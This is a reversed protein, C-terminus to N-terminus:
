DAWKIKKKEEKGRKILAARESKPIGYTPIGVLSAAARGLGKGPPAQVGASLPFPSAQLAIAKAKAAEMGGYGKYLPKLKPADLSPYAHGSVEVYLAKPWFGLKNGLTKTPDRLWEATEMSHKAVQMSTGDGNDVRTPDPNEWVPHGSLAMNIGNIITLYAIATNLVYRRAFDGQTVPNFMGKVGQRLQWNQPKALEKPLATTFSRLTSVTWDPAFLMIQSWARGKLGAAQMAFAKAYKNEVQNAVDIWNLGGFTNNVFRSIEKQLQADPIDPNKLKAKTFLNMALNLKQGMHMYDWTFKNINQLVYKDYPDTIHQVAKIEKDAPAFRSLLQDAAQGTKAIITKDVDEVSAMLGNQIFGNILENNADTRFAEVAKRVGAGGSFVEKLFLAPHAVAQATGLSYAHFFSGVTNLSKILYNIAGLGRLLMGPNTQQFMHEMAPVIDPHVLQGELPRSGKGQFPVYGEKLAETSVPVIYGKKNPAITEKFHDIMIKHVRATLMAKEYAGAITAIDTHVIVGTGAVAEELDRLYEYKRAVTFDKILKSDKPANYIKSRLDQIEKPSFGTKSFDLIHTIYNERLGDILGAKEAQDGIDKLRAEVQKVVPIAHEEDPLAEWKDHAAKLREVKDELELRTQEDKTNSLEVLLNDIGKRMNSLDKAKESTTHLKDIAKQAEISRTARSRIGENPIMEKINNEWIDAKRTLVRIDAMAQGVIDAASKLVDPHSENEKIIDKAIEEHVKAMAEHAIDQAEKPNPATQFNPDGSKRLDGSHLGEEPFDHKNYDKPIQGTEKARSEAEERNLFNGEQDLFGQNYKSSESEPTHGEVNAGDVGEAKLANDHVAGQPVVEGTEKNRLAAQVLRKSQQKRAMVDSVTEDPKIRSKQFEPDIPKPPEKDKVVAGGSKDWIIKAGEVAARTSGGFLGFMIATNAVTKPDVKGEVAGTTAEATAGIAAGRATTEAIKAATGAKEMAAALKAPAAEWLAPFMLEPDSAVGKVLSAVADLPHEVLQNGMIKLSETTSLAPADKEKPYYKAERAQEEKTLGAKAISEGLVKSVRGLYGESYWPKNDETPTTTKEVSTPSDEWKVSKAPSSQDTSPAPTNEWAIPM